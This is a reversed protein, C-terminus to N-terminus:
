RASGGTLSEIYRRRAADPDADHVVTRVAAANAISASNLAAERAAQAGAGLAAQADRRRIIEGAIDRATRDREEAVQRAREAEIERYHQQAQENASGGGARMQAPSWAPTGGGAVGALSMSRAVDDPTPAVPSDTLRRLWAARARDPDPVADRLPSSGCACDAFSGVIQGTEQNVIDYGFVTHRTVTEM